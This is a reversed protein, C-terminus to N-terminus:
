RGHVPIAHLAKARNHRLGASPMLAVTGGREELLKYGFGRVTVLPPAPVAGAALKGRLRRMHVDLSRAVDRDHYGWVYQALEERSVVEDLRSALVCLLRYETPTLRVVEGGLTVQCRAHDIVLGGIRQQAPPPASSAQRPPAARRLVAEVRAVLDDPSFPKAIFDDAGLKLGLVSDEKRRTASCIIIPVDARAKLDACLVLGHVDPLMLDLLILDPRAGDLAVEAEAGTAVHWVRYGKGELLQRLLWAVTPDDEVLLISARAVKTANNM